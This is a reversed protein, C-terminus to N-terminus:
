YEPKGTIKMRDGVKIGNAAFWGQKMELAYLVPRSSGVAIQDHPQMAKIDTIVGQQDIFAVDLPIYTNKMWMSAPRVSDFHFLMGCQQCLSKRYMLGQARLAFSWAYEVRVNIDNLQLKIAGFKQAALSASAWVLLMIPLYKRM